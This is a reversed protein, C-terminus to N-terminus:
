QENTHAGHNVESLTKNNADVSNWNLEAGLYASLSDNYPRFYDRLFERTEVNMPSAYKGENKFLKSYDIQLEGCSLGLFDFVQTAVVAPNKFFEESKVILIQKKDFLGHYVRIFNEYLGRKLYTEIFYHSHRVNNLEDDIAQEFTRTERCGKAYASQTNYFMTYESYARDVPDRIMIIIKADPVLTSIRKAATQCYLYSVSFDSTFVPKGTKRQVSRFKSKLPFFRKYSNPGNYKKTLFGAVRNVITRPRPAFDPLDQLFDLEKARMFLPLYGPHQRVIEFLTTTGCKPAGVVFVTPLTRYRATVGRYIFELMSLVLRFARIM